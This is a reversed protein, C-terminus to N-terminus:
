GNKLELNNSSLLKFTKIRFLLIEVLRFIIIFLAPIGFYHSQISSNIDGHLLFSLSKGLDCGPCNNWGFYQFLCLDLNINKSPDIFFLYVLGLFLFYFEISFIPLLIKLSKFLLM